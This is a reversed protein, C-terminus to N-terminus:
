LVAVLDDQGVLQGTRTSSAVSNKAVVVRSGVVDTNDDVVVDVLGAGVAVVAVAEFAVVLDKNDDVVDVVDALVVAVAEVAVVVDVDVEVVLVVDVVVEARLDADVASVQHDNKANPSQPSLESVKRVVTLLNFLFNKV